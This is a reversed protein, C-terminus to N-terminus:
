PNKNQNFKNTLISKKDYIEESDFMKIFPSIISALTKNSIVVNYKDSNINQCNLKSLSIDVVKKTIEKIWQKYNTVTQM